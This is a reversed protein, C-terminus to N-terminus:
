SPLRAGWGRSSTQKESPYSSSSRSTGRSRSTRGWLARFARRDRSSSSAQALRHTTTMVMVMVRCTRIPYLGKKIRGM